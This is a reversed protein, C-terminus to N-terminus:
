LTPAPMLGIGWISMPPGPHEPPYIDLMVTQSLPVLAAGFSGQLLRFLVMQEISQAIGCLLSAFTFGAVCIIFLKKRGLRDSIWGIPSTLVAAAVIYSRLLWIIQVPPQGLSGLM